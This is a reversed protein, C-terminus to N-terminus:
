DSFIALEKYSSLVKATVNEENSCLLLSNKLNSVSKLRM